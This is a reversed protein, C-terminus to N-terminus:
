MIRLVEPFLLAIRRLFLWDLRSPRQCPNSLSKFSKTRCLSMKVSSTTGLYAMTRRHIMGRAMSTDTLRPNDRSVEDDDSALDDDGISEFDQADEAKDGVDFQRNPDFLDEGDFRETTQGNLLRAIEDDDQQEQLDSLEVAHPM